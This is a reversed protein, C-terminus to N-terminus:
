TTMEGSALKLGPRGDIAGSKNLIPDYESGLEGTPVDPHELSFKFDGRSHNVIQFWPRM